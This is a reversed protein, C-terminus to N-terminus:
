IDLFGEPLDVSIKKKTKNVSTIFPGNTPILFEKKENSVVLLRITGSTEVASIEGIEGLQVDDVKFGMIEDDYFEGKGSKPRETKPLYIDKKSISEAQEPTDHEEFKVFAKTGRVSVSEIFFPVLENPRLQIFVNKLTDWDAPADELLVTVEGKLGHPRAIKGIKYCHEVKMRTYQFVFIGIRSRVPM